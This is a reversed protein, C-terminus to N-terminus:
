QRIFMTPHNLISDTAGNIINNGYDWYFKYWQYTYPSLSSGRVKFTADTGICTTDNEPQQLISIPTSVNLTVTDSTVTGCM